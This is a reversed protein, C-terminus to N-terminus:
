IYLRGGDKGGEERKVLDPDFLLIIHIEILKLVFDSSNRYHTM